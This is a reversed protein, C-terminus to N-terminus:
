SYLYIFFFNKEAHCGGRGPISYGGSNDLEKLRIWNEYDEAPHAAPPNSAPIWRGM